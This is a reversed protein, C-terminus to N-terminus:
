KDEVFYLLVEFFVGLFGVFILVGKIISKLVWKINM